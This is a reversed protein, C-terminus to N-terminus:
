VCLRMRSQSKSKNSRHLPRLMVVGLAPGLLPLLLLGASAFVSSGRLLLWCRAPCSQAVSLQM